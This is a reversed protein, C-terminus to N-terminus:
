RRATLTLDWELDPQMLELVHGVLFADFRQLSRIAPSTGDYIKDVRTRYNRQVEECIRSCDIGDPIPPIENRLPHTRPQLDQQAHKDLEQKLRALREKFENYRRQNDQRAAEAAQRRAEEVGIAEGSNSQSTQADAM